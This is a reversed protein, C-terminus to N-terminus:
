ERDLPPANAHAATQLERCAATADLPAMGHMNLALSAKADLLMKVVGVDGVAMAVHLPTFM